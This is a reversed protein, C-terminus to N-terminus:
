PLAGRYQGEMCTVRRLERLEGYGIGVVGHLLLLLLARDMHGLHRHNRAAVLCADLDLAAMVHLLVDAVDLLVEVLDLRPLLALPLSPLALHGDHLVGAHLEVMGDDDGDRSTEVDGVGVRISVTIDECMQLQVVFDSGVLTDSCFLWFNNRSFLLDLRPM